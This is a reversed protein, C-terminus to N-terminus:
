CCAWSMYRPDHSPFSYLVDTSRPDSYCYVRGAFVEFVHGGHKACIKSYQRDKPEWESLDRSLMVFIGVILVILMNMSIYFVVNVLFDKTQRSMVM